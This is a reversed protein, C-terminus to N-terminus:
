KVSFRPPNRALDAEWREMAVRLEVLKEPYQYAIDVRESIDKELDFLMDHAGDQVYKWKGQRVAKQKREARNVRWCFTRERMPQNGKLIPLVDMGDLPRDATPKAGAAALITATWDMTMTAQASVKGAPLQGTWRVIAPVRIGGEWLTQKHNFLPENRSLREGGNDDTFIILTDKALNSKDIAQLVHGVASDVSEVMQAYDRRTGDVWTASTRVDNPKGPAQFPWHVANFAVYLFFPNAVNRTVYASAREAILDTLYGPQEVPKTNEWLDSFGSRYKHSYHDVNGSLIGFFEDFGHANPGFEPEAGLHWKGFLATKYGERKLMTALSTETISLGKGADAPVLAWELGVRQQYRGTMLAARTPTCVPGNSYNDTLRVGDRALRDLHPTKTDKVGYSGIDGYGMDDVLFVVVNPRRQAPVFAAVSSFAFQRRTM